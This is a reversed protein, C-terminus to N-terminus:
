RIGKMKIPHRVVPFQGYYCSLLIDHKNYCNIIKEYIRIMLKKM